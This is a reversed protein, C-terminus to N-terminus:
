VDQGDLKEMFEDHTMQGKMKNCTPCAPVVNHIRHEGGRSLPTLHEIELFKKNGDEDKEPEQGCYACCNEFEKVRQVWERLTLRPLGHQVRKMHNQTTKKWWTQLMGRDRLGKRVKAM